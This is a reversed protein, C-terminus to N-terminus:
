TFLGRSQNGRTVGLSGRLKAYDAMDMNALEDKTIQRNMPSTEPPGVPPAGTPPATPLAQRAAQQQGQVDAVIGQSAWTLDEISAEIEEPTNGTVLHRLQPIIQDSVENLRNTKYSLVEAFQREKEYLQAQFEQAKRTEEIEARLTKEREEWDRTRSEILEKAEMDAEAKKKAEAAAAKRADEQAKKEAAREEEMAKLRAEMENRGQLQPYLKEKEERRIREREKNVEEETWVRPGNQPQGPPTQQAPDVITVTPEAPPANAPDGEIVGQQFGTDSGGAIYPLITGDRYLWKWKGDIQIKYGPEAYSM